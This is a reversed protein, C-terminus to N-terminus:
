KSIVNIEKYKQLNKELKSAKSAVDAFYTNLEVSTLVIKKKDMVFELNSGFPLYLLKVIKQDKSLNIIKKGSGKNLLPLAIVKIILMKLDDTIFVLQDKNKSQAYNVPLFFQLVNDTKVNIIAKGKKNKTILEDYEIVFGYGNSTCLLHYQEPKAIAIFYANPPPTVKSTLPDGYGRVSPLSSVPVSYARGSSCIFVANDKNNTEISALHSDGTKFQLNKLEIDHGKASRVWGKESLLVTAPFSPIEILKTSVKKSSAKEILRCNRADGFSKSDAKLEDIIIKKLNQKSSLINEIKIKEAVLEKEEKAINNEELKALARLKLDLIANVQMDSLKFKQMLVAKPEDENRIINIVADLNLYCKLYGELIHLRDNVKSLRYEYRSTVINQRFQLWENLLSYLNKVEPKGNLGIVNFNIKYSRELDTSAFLHEMLLEQDLQKSKTVIVIRTPTNHDSDDRLDTIQPLKKAQMQTAIQELVKAGSVLYPLGTIIIEDGSLEYIARARVTGNGEAYTDNIESLPTIIECKTPFDPGKIFALIDSLSHAKNELIAVCANVVENLNHPPMDTAMGVAIGTVGNLLLNPLRAPLVAPEEISGDFNPLWEVTGQGLESLLIDSYKSLRSETYRMAAFSKPDDPSGWNGQGDILPYRYSFAQAMLVMAEYCASDGHPHYKGLVDGVTRASKKHKAQNGLNLESMAYIIRRQVPKLGDGIHPLARDLIVYMAYDLYAKETFVKLDQKEVNLM